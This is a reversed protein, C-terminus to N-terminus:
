VDIVRVPNYESIYDDLQDPFPTSKQCSASEVFRKMLKRAEIVIVNSLLISSEANKCLRPWFRVNVMKILGAM